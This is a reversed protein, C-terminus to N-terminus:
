WTIIGVNQMEAEKESSSLKIGAKRGARSAAREPGLFVVDSGIRKSSQVCRTGGKPSSFGRRVEAAHGGSAAGCFWVCGGPSCGETPGARGGKCAPSDRPGSAEGPGLRPSPKARASAEVSPRVSPRVPCSRAAGVSLPVERPGGGM